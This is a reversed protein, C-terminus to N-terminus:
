RNLVDIMHRLSVQIPEEKGHDNISYLQDLSGSHMCRLHLSYMNYMESDILQLTDTESFGQSHYIIYLRNAVSNLLMSVAENSAADLMAKQAAEFPLYHGIGFVAHMTADDPFSGTAQLQERLLRMKYSTIVNRAYIDETMHGETRYQKRYDVGQNFTKTFEVIDNFNNQLATKDLLAIGSPVLVALAVLGPVAIKLFQRRNIDKPQTKYLTILSYATTGAMTVGVINPFYDALKRYLDTDLDSAAIGSPPILAQIADPYAFDGICVYTGEKFRTQLTPDVWGTTMDLGQAFMGDHLIFRPTEGEQIEDLVQQLWLDPFQDTSHVIGHQYVRNADQFAPFEKNERLIEM